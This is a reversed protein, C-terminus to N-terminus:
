KPPPLSSMVSLHPGDPTSTVQYDVIARKNDAFLAFKRRLMEDLIARGDSRIDPPMTKLIDQIMKEREDVPLLAANWALVAMVLLKRLQEETQWQDDYPEIFELLVESMKEEGPPSPIVVAKDLFDPLASSPRSPRHQKKRDRKKKKKRSSM